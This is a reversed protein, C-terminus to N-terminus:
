RVNGTMMKNEHLTSKHGSIGSIIVVFAVRKLLYNKVHRNEVISQAFTGRILRGFCADLILCIRFFIM